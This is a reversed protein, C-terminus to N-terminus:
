RLPLPSLRSGDEDVAFVALANRGDRLLSPPVLVAFDRDGPGDTLRSVGAVVGNVAVAVSPLGAPVDHVSGTLYMPLTDAATDVSRWRHAGLVRARGAVPPGPELEAVRRGVLVGGPGTRFIRLPDGVRPAFTGVSRELVAPRLRVGDLPLM